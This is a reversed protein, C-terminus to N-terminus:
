SKKVFKLNGHTIPTSQTSHKKVNIAFTGHNKTIKGVNELKIEEV